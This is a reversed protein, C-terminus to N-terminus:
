KHGKSYEAPSIGFNKKFMKSFNFIDNYGCIMATDSVSCGNKLMIKAKSLRVFIIYEQISMGANSKFIRSIYSRNLGVLKAIEQVTIHKMYNVDIYNKVQSYYTQPKEHNDFLEAYIDYLRACIFEEKTSSTRDINRIEAFANSNLETVPPLESFKDSLSGNFGIWAYTWPNNKDATYITTEYPKIIFIEGSKVEKTGFSGSFTGKGSFIYHILYYSRVAPGFFKGPLCDEFGADLPNLDSFGKNILPIHLETKNM